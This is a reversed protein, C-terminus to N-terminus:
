FNRGFVVSFEDVYTTKDNTLKSVNYGFKWLLNGTNKSYAISFIPDKNSSEVRKRLPEPEGDIFTLGEAKISWDRQGLGFEITQDSLVRYGILFIIDRHEVRSSSSAKLKTTNRYGQLDTASFNGNTQKGMIYFSFKKHETMRFNISVLRTDGSIPGSLPTNRYETKFSPYYAFLHSSNVELRDALKFGINIGTGGIAYKTKVDDIEINDRAVAAL